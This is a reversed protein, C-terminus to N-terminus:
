ISKKSFTSMLKSQVPKIPPTKVPKLTPTKVPKLPPTKVPKPPYGQKHGPPTSVGPSVPSFLEESHGDKKQFPDWIGMQYCTLLSNYSVEFAYSACNPYQYLLCLFEYFIVLIQCIAKFVRISKNVVLYIYYRILQDATQPVEEKVSKKKEDIARATKISGSKASSM